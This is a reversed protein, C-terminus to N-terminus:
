SLVISDVLGLKRVMEDHFSYEIGMAAIYGFKGRWDNTSWANDLMWRTWRDPTLIDVEELAYKGVEKIREMGCRAIYDEVDAPTFKLLTSLHFIETRRESRPFEQDMAESLQKRGEMGMTKWSRKFIPTETQLVTEVTKDSHDGVDQPVSSRCEPATSESMKDGNVGVNPRSDDTKSESLIATAYDNPASKSPRESKKKPQKPSTMWLVIQETTTKFKAAVFSLFKDVDFLYHKTPSHNAKQVFTKFGLKKLAAQAREVTRSSFSTEYALEAASKYIAGDSRRSKPMWAVLRFFIVEVSHQGFIFPYLTDANPYAPDNMNYALSVFHQRTLQMNSM